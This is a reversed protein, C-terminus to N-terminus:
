KALLVRRSATVGEDGRLRVLYVGTGVLYEMRMPENRNCQPSYLM